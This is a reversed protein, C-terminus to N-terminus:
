AFAPTNQTRQSEFATKAKKYQEMKHHIFFLMGGVMLKILCYLVPTLLNIIKMLSGKNSELVDQDISYIFPDPIGLTLLEFLMLLGYACAAILIYKKIHERSFSLVLLSASALLSILGFYLNANFGILATSLTALAVILALYAVSKFKLFLSLYDEFHFKLKLRSQLYQREAESLTEHKVNAPSAFIQKSVDERLSENQIGELISEPFLGQALAQRGKEIMMKKEELSTMIM